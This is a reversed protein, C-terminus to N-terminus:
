ETKKTEILAEATGFIALLPLLSFIFGFSVANPEAPGPGQFLFLPVVVSLLAGLMHIVLGLRSGQTLSLRRRKIQTFLYALRLLSGWYVAGLLAFFLSETFSAPLM